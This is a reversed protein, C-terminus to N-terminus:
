LSFFMAAFCIVLLWSAVWMAVVNPMEFFAAFSTISSSAETATACVFFTPAKVKGPIPLSTLALRLARMPRLGAVPSAILIGALVTTLNRTALAALSLITGGFAFFYGERARVDDNRFAASRRPHPVSKLEGWMRSSAGGETQSM